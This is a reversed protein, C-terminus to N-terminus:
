HNTSQHQEIYREALLVAVYDDYPVNPVQMGVPILRSFGRPPNEKFFRAKADLTTFKEDVTEVPADKPLAEIISKVDKGGTGGGIIIVSPSFSGAFRQVTEALRARPVVARTLVGSEAGVIAM